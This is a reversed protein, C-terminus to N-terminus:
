LSWGYSQALARVAIWDREESVLTSPASTSPCAGGYPGPAVAYAPAKNEAKGFDLAEALNNATADRVTLPQLGWRWEIFRLVSTHDFPV